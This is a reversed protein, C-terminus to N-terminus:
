TSRSLRGRLSAAALRGIAKAPTLRFARRDTRTAALVQEALWSAVVGVPETLVEYYHRQRAGRLEHTALENDVVMDTDVLGPDLLGVSVQTDRTELLLSRHLYELARKTAGYTAMGRSVRANSGFGLMNWVYGSRQGLMGAIAVACGNIAGVLNVEVIQRLDTDSAEWLLRPAFATGANNIWHDVGGFEEVAVDWLRQAGERRAIDVAVGVVRPGLRDAASRASRETRGCIVVPHGRESFARALGYGIGRTGGTVVISTM